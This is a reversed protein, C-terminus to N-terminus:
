GYLVTPLRGYPQLGRATLVIFLYDIFAYIVHVCAAHTKLCFKACSYISIHVHSYLM